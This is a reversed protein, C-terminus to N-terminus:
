SKAIEAIIKAAIGSTLDGLDKDPNIESIDAAKVNLLNVRQLLYILERPNLGGSEPYGTGPAFAADLVDIDISLYVSDFRRAIEMIEDCEEELSNFLQKCTFLNIKNDTLFSQEVPHVNRLGILIISRPNFGKEVLVRLWGEHTPTSLDHMCDAHADFVILCANKNEESFSRLLSYSISHDGGIFIPFESNFIQKSKSIIRLNSAELNSNEVSIEEKKFVVEKNQENTYINKLSNLIHSYAKECGDTKGLGNILPVNVLLM